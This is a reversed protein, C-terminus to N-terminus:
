NIKTHLLRPAILSELTATEGIDADDEESDDPIGTITSAVTGAQECVCDGVTSDTATASSDSATPTRM